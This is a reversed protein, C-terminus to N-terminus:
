FPVGSPLFPLVVVNNGNVSLVLISVKTSRRPTNSTWLPGFPCPLPLLFCVFCAELGTLFSVNGCFHCFTCPGNIANGSAPPIESFGGLLCLCRFGPNQSDRQQTLAPYSLVGGALLRGSFGGLGPGVVDEMGVLRRGCDVCVGVLGLRCEVLEWGGNVGGAGREFWMRRVDDWM